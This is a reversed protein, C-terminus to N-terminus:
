NQFSQFGEIPYMSQAYGFAIDFVSLIFLLIFLCYLIGVKLERKNNQTTHGQVRHIDGESIAGSDNKYVRIFIGSIARQDAQSWLHTIHLLEFSYISVM